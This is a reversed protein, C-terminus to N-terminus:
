WPSPPEAMNISISTRINKMVSTCEEKLSNLASGTPFNNNYKEYIKIFYKNIVDEIPIDNKALVAEKVVGAFLNIQNRLHTDPNLYEAEGTIISYKIFEHQMMFLVLGLKCGSILDAYGTDGVNCDKNNLYNNLLCFYMLKIVSAQQEENLYDETLMFYLSKAVLYPQRVVAFSREDSDIFRLMKKTGAELMADDGKNLSSVINQALEDIIM